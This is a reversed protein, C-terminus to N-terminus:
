AAVEVAHAAVLKWFAEPDVVCYFGQWNLRYVDARFDYGEDFVIVRDAIAEVDFESRADAVVGSAEIPTVIEWYIADERTTYKIPSM